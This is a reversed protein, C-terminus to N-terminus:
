GTLRQRRAEFLMVAAAIAANLSESENAMPISLTARAAQYAAQTAGHAEGGIILGTPQRWDVAYYPTPAKSEAVYLALEYFEAQVQVWTEQVMAVHFHAGMGSRLVKPNYPDVCGPLLVVCDVGAAGATRLITGMNGPDTIGDLLLALTVPVRPMIRPMPAVALIGQPTDTDTMHGMVERSVELTPVDARHLRGLLSVHLPNLDETYCAFQPPFGRDLADTILRVGELVIKGEKRRTKAQDQLARVLKVRENHVSTIIPAM